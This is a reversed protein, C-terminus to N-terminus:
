ESKSNRLWETKYPAKFLHATKKQAEAHVAAPDQGTVVFRVAILRKGNERYTVAAGPRLFQGKPDPKGDAGVPTVLDRLRIRPTAALEAAPKVGNSKPESKLGGAQAAAARNPAAGADVPVDLIAEQGRRLRDPWRLVVDFSKDGEVLQIVSKGGLTMRLTQNVEAVTVGWRQCKEMDARLELTPAGWCRYVHVRGIGPLKRLIGGARDALRELESLDPGSIKLLSEGPGPAFAEGFDDRRSTSSAWDAGPVQHDLDLVVTEMLELRTSPRNTKALRPWSAAPTLAVHFHAKRFGAADFDDDGAGAYSVVARVFPYKSLQARVARAQRALGQQAISIPFTGQIWFHEVSSGAGMEEYPEIRVGPLLRGPTDNLVKVLAKVKALTAAADEGWRLFVAGEIRDDEDIWVPKDARDRALRSLGVQGRRSAHGVIVGKEASFAGKAPPGGEVLDEIRIPINNVRGIVLARIEKIRRVEEARLHAAAARADKMALAKKMSDQGGGLLGLGRIRIAAAGQRVHDGGINTNGEKLAAELQSVSVGYRKLRDPDVHIEYRKRTGGSGLVGAVGPLRNMERELTWDELAQLDSSSYIGKGSADRPNHLTYRLLASSYTPGLTPSVGEPMQPQNFQLRSVIDWRAKHYDTGKDFELRMLCLGFLSQSCVRKLGKMGALSVELPITVQREVEEPSAAPYRTVLDVIVPQSAHRLPEERSFLLYVSLGVLGVLVLIGFLTSHQIVGKRQM